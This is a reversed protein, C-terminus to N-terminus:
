RRAVYPERYYDNTSQNVQAINRVSGVSGTMHFYADAMMWMSVCKGNQQSWKRLSSSTVGDEPGINNKAWYGGPETAELALDRSLGYMGGHMGDACPLKKVCSEAPCNDNFSRGLPDWTCGRTGVKVGWFEYKAWCPKESGDLSAVVKHLLPFVDMDMKAIHTAWPFQRAAASFFAFSKGHNMNEEIDLYLEDGLPAQRYMPTPSDGRGMVFAVYVRCGARPAKEGMLTCVGGQKMWTDRIVKRYETASEKSFVGIVLAGHGLPGGFVGEFSTNAREDSAAMDRWLQSWKTFDRIGRVVQAAEADFSEVAKEMTRNEHLPERPDAGRHEPTKLASAGFCALLSFLLAVRISHGSM